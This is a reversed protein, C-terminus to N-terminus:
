GLPIVEEVKVVKLGGDQEPGGAGSGRLHEALSPLVVAESEEEEEEEKM